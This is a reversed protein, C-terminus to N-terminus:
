EENHDLPSETNRFSPSSHGAPCGNTIIRAQFFIRLIGLHTNGQLNTLLQVPASGAGRLTQRSQRDTSASPPTPLFLHTVQRRKQKWSNGM